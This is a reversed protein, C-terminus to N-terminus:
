FSLMANVEIRFTQNVQYALVLSVALGILTLGIDKFLLKAGGPPERGLKQAAGGRARAPRASRHLGLDHEDPDRLRGYRLM